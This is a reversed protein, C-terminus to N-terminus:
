RGLRRREQCPAWALYFTTGPAMSLDSSDVSLEAQDSSSNQVELRSSINVIFPWGSCNSWTGNNTGATITFIDTTPGVLDHNTTSIDRGETGRQVHVESHLRAKAGASLAAFGRYDIKLVKLQYGYPPTMQFRLNCNGSVRGERPVMVSYQDFLFSLAGQDPSISVQVSGQPCGAGKYSVNDLKLKNVLQAESALSSLLLTIGLILRM